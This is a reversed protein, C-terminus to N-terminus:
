CHTYVHHGAQIPAGLELVTTGMLKRWLLGGWLVVMDPVTQKAFTRFLKFDRGFNAASYGAPAGGKAAIRGDRTAPSTAFSTVIEAKATKAFDVVGKFQQRTRM